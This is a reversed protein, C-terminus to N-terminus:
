SATLKKQLHNRLYRRARSLQSKSTNESIGLEEAIEKHSYEEFVYLNFVVKYGDPLEQVAEMMMQPSFLPEENAPDPEDAVKESFRQPDEEVFMLRRSKLYNLAHNVMIRRIWGELSGQGRFTSIKQFVKIFGEQLLDEAEASSKSYRMCVGHMTAAYKKYLMYQARRKERICEEVLQSETLM